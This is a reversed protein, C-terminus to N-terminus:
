SKLSVRWYVVSKSGSPLIDDQSPYQAASARPKPSTDGTLGPRMSFGLLDHPRNFFLVKASKIRSSKKHHIPDKFANHRRLRGIELLSAAM